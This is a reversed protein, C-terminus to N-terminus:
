LSPYPSPVTKKSRTEMAKSFNSIKVGLTEAESSIAVLEEASIYGFEKSIEFECVLEMLSGYAINLFHKKDKVTSRSYGEVINAAVSVAAQNIQSTLAYKERDPFGGTLKYCKVALSKALRYIELSHFAFQM